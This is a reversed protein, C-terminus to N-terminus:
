LGLEEKSLQSLAISRYTECSSLLEKHTGQGVVKGQDLVLILDADMITGIRQAVIVKTAEKEKEKLNTRLTLDTKFDLASFSDDFVYIEPHIAIARAICLRQRQGGSVNTGGQAIPSDFGKEMENIFDYACATKAVEEMEELSISPNGFRINSAITGSFLNGKQPIFGIIKRLSSQNVEKIDVGDIKISGSTADYFRAILNILSTKGSGTSGIIAVTDGQKAKFSVGSIVPNDADPYAFSVDDFEITGKELFEKEEKPDIISSNTDLVASVRKASVMARPLMIFMMLLTMFAMVIQTSLMMFSSVTAYNTVGSNILTAGLWYVALSIGDMVITILPDFLSLVRGTFKGLKLLSDNPKAFKDEQFSEANYAHVIRIGSLNERSIGNIRDILNQFIKFKPVVLFFIILLGILLFILFAATTLTLETSTAQIKCIAWIATVPAAFIMRMMMLFTMQVNEIDNTTRTILSATSFKNIEALSFSNIKENLEKRLNTAFSATIASALIAITAQCGVMGGVVALMMGANFWIDNESFGPMGYSVMTISSILDRMYDSLLMTCYVQLVTLGAILALFVYDIPRFRRILKLM